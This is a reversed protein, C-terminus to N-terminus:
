SSDCVVLVADPTELTTVVVKDVPTLSMSVQKKQIKYIM